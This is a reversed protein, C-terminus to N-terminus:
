RLTTLTNDRLEAALAGVVAKLSGFSAEAVQLQRRYSPGRDIITQVRHLEDLSGLEEAIPSLKTILDLLDDTVLREDGDPSVVVIADIGYRAARWKNERHFWQPFVPIPRGADLERSFYEVLTQTFAAIAGIEYATSVGDFVRLEVTGWKPSPRIDWRLDGFSEIVGIHRLDAVLREYSAWDTFAPTLGATPLQQFMLARNSAYGTIEGAWFPSSASLAQFHPLYNLLGNVIPLVKDRREIGVHIHVGWIMMQRGWWQTRDILVDYRPNGPTVQQAFWQSFPHTGSSIVEVGLPEAIDIVTHALQSLEAVAHNVRHHPATVLEVTNTLLEGTVHPFGEVPGIKALIEPAAPALEGSRRDVCAVEWELGIRSREAATFEITM